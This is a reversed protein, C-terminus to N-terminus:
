ERLEKPEEIRIHTVVVEGDPILTETAQDAEALYKVQHRLIKEYARRLNRGEVIVTHGTLYRLLMSGSPIKEGSPLATEAPCWVPNPLMSYDFAPWTGRNRRFEVAFVQRNGLEQGWCTFDEDEEDRGARLPIPRKGPFPWVNDKNDNM